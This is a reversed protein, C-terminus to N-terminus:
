LKPFTRVKKKKLKPFTRVHNVKSQIALLESGAPRSSYEKKEVEKDIAAWARFGTADILQDSLPGLFSNHANGICSTMSSTSAENM